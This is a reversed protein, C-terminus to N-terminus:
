AGFVAQVITILAAAMIALVFVYTLIGKWDM